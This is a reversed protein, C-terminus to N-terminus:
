GQSGEDGGEATTAEGRTAMLRAYSEEDLRDCRAKGEATQVWSGDPQQELGYKHITRTNPAGGLKRWTHMLKVLRMHNPHREYSAAHRNRAAM